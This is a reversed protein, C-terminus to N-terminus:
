RICICRNNTIAIDLSSINPTKRLEEFLYQKIKRNLTTEVLNETYKLLISTVLPCQVASNATSQLRRLFGSLDKGENMQIRLYDIRRISIPYGIRLILNKIKFIKELNANQMGRQGQTLVM